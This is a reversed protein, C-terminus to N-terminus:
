NEATEFFKRVEEEEAEYLFSLDEKLGKLASAMIEKRLDAVGRELDVDSLSFEVQSAELFRSRAARLNREIERVLGSRKLLLIGLTVVAVMLMTIITTSSLYM